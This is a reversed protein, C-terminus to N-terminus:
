CNWRCEVGGRFGCFGEWFGFVGMEGRSVKVERGGWMFVEGGKSLRM